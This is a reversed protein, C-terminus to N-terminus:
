RKPIPKKRKMSVALAVTAAFLAVLTITSPVEPITPSPSPILVPSPMHELILAQALASSSAGSVPSVLPHNDAKQLGIAYVPYEM